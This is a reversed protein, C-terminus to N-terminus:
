YRKLGIKVVKIATRGLRLCDLLGLIGGHLYSGKKRPSKEVSSSKTDM